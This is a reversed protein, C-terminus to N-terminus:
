KKAPFYKNENALFNSAALQFLQQSNITKSEEWEEKEM